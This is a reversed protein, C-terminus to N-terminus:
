KSRNICGENTDGTPLTKLYSLNYGPVKGGCRSFFTVSVKKLPSLFTECASDGARRKRSEGTGLGACKDKPAVSPCAMNGLGAGLLEEGM